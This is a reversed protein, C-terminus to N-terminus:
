VRHAKDLSWPGEDKLNYKEAHYACIELEVPDGDLVFEISGIPENRCAVVLGAEMDVSYPLGCYRRVVAGEPFNLM